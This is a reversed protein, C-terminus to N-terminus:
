LHSRKRLLIVQMKLDIWSHFFGMSERLPGTLVVGLDEGPLLCSVGLKLSSKDMQSTKYSSEVKVHYCNSRVAVFAFIEQM